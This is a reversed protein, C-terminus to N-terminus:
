CIEHSTSVTSHSKCLNLRMVVGFIASQGYNIDGKRRGDMERGGIITEEEGKVTEGGEGDKGEGRKKSGKRSIAPGRVKGEM